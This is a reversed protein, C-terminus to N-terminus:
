LAEPARRWIPVNEIKDTLLTTCPSEETVMVGIRVLWHAKLVVIGGNGPQDASSERIAPQDCLM